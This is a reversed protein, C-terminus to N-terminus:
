WRAFQIAGAYESTGNISERGLLASPTPEGRYNLQVIVAGVGKAPKNKPVLKCVYCVPEQPQPQKQPQNQSKLACRRSCHNYGPSAHNYCGNTECPLNM